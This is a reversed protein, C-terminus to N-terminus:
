ICETGIIVIRVKTMLVTLGVKNIVSCTGLLHSLKAYRMAQFLTISSLSSSQLLIEQKGELGM